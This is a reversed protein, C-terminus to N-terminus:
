QIPDSNVISTVWNNVFLAADYIDIFGSDDVDYIKTIPSVPTQSIIWSNIVAAVDNIDLQNNDDVDGIVMPTATWTFSNTGPVLVVGTAVKKRMHAPGKVYIDYTDPVINAGTVNGSYVAAANGTTIVVFNYRVTSGQALTVNVTKTPYSPNLSTIGQFKVSFNFNAPVTTPTATPLPTASPLPSPTPTQTPTPLPTPTVTPLPAPTATATPLPTPTNTPTPTPLTISYNGTPFSNSLIDSTDLKALVVSQPDFSVATTSATSAGRLNLSAFRMQGTALYGSTTAQGPSFLANITVILGSGSPTVEINSYQWPIPLAPVVDSVTLSFASANVLNLIARVASFGLNGPTSPVTLMIDVPLTSGPLVSSTLPTLTMTSSGSPTAARPENRLKNQLDAVRKIAIPLVIALFLIPLLALLIRLNKSM